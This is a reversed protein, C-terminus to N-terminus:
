TSPSHSGKPAHEYFPVLNINFALTIGKTCTWFITGNLPGLPTHDRQHMNMFHDRKITWPSHSGKPAHKSITGNLTSPSHSRKPAHESFPVMEHQLRIHDRRRMKLIHYWKMNFDTWQVTQNNYPATVPTTNPLGHTSFHIKHPKNVNRLFNLPSWANRRWWKFHQHYRANFLM